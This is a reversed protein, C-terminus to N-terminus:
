AISAAQPHNVSALLGRARQRRSIQENEDRALRSLLVEARAVTYPHPLASAVKAATLALARAKGPASEAAIRAGALLANATALRDEQRRGEAAVADFAAAGGALDGAATLLAARLHAAGLLAHADPTANDLADLQAAAEKEDGGDYALAALRLRARTALTEDERAVGKDLARRALAAALVVDGAIGHIRSLQLMARGDLGREDRCEALATEAHNWAEDLRGRLLEVESLRLRARRGVVTTAGLGEELALRYQFAAHRLSGRALAVHGVLLAGEAAIDLAGEDLGLRRAMTAAVGAEGHQATALLGRAAELWQLSLRTAELPASVLGSGVWTMLARLEGLSSTSGGTGSPWRPAAAIEPLDQIMPERAKVGLGKLAREEGLVVIPWGAAALKGLVADGDVFAEARPVLVVGDGPAIGDSPDLVIRAAPLERRTRALLETRTGGTVTIAVLGPTPKEIAEFAQQTNDLPITLPNM